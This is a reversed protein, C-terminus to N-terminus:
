ASGAVAAFANLSLAAPLSAPRALHYGQGWGIELARLTELEAATEIGEAVVVADLERAFAVLGTALARRAPDADIGRTLAVDLKVIEPRVRLLHQLGAYGAGTDDVAIRIGRRRLEGLAALLADYDDVPSHETLELVIRQGSFRDLLRELQPSMATAPSANVSLFVEAPLQDLEQLAAAIAAIELDVSRGVRGADEFWENPPRPPDGAFRALAELGVLRSGELDVIPQFVMSLRGDNLVADLAATLARHEAALRREQDAHRELEATLAANHRQVDAYLSRTQLLNRVRLVVETRDFPKTLFDNAGASLARDRTTSTTDATLVLIPVFVGDPAAARLSAMVQFGDLHPMQLDLLVLDPRVQLWREVAERSDTVGHVQQVGVSRLLRSLLAVNAPADDVVLVCANQLLDEDVRLQGLPPESAQGGRADMSTM